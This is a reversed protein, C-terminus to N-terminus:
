EPVRQTRTFSGGLVPYNWYGRVPANRPCGLNARWFPGNPEVVSM